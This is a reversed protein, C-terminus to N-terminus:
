TYTNFGGENGINCLAFSIHHIQAAVEYAGTTQQAASNRYAKSEVGVSKAYFSVVFFEKSQPVEAM